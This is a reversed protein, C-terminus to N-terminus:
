NAASRRQRFLDRQSSHRRWLDGGRVIGRQTAPGLVIPKDTIPVATGAGIPIRVGYVSMDDTVVAFISKGDDSWRPQSVGRDLAESAAVRLPAGSGRGGGAGSAGDRLRRVEQRRRRSVRDVQRRPEMGAQRPRRQSTLPTLAKESSGPKADVVFLQSSPERDPDTHRNSMFAIRTGDPSWSPSSEDAKGNTLRDFKKRRSTSCISTPTAARCCIARCTRSTSTAISSSRSRRRAQRDPAADARDIRIRIASRGARPAELGAVMRLGAAPGKVETLQFAEGGSRDLLWVQNGKAKGPVRRLSRCTSATRASVRRRNATPARRSRGSTRATSASPGSTRTAPRTKRSTSRRSSSPSARATLRASRTACRRSGRWITSRCPRRAGQASVVGCSALIVVLASLIRKM